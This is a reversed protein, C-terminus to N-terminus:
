QIRVAAVAALQPLQLFCLILVMLVQQQVLLVVQEVQAWQSQTLVQQLHFNHSMQREGVLQLQALVCDVQAVAVALLPAVVAAV